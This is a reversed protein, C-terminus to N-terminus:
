LNGEALVRRLCSPIHRSHHRTWMSRDRALVAEVRASRAAARLERTVAFLEALTFALQRGREVLAAYDRSRADVAPFVAGGAREFADSFRKEEQIIQEQAAVAEPNPSGSAIPLWFARLVSGDSERQM